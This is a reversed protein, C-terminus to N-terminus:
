QDKLMDMIRVSDVMFRQLFGILDLTVPETLASTRAIKSVFVSLLDANYSSGKGDLNENTNSFTTEDKTPLTVRMVKNGFPALFSDPTWWFFYLPMELEVLHPVLAMMGYYGVFEINIKLNRNRIMSQMYGHAWSSSGGLFTMCDGKQASPIASDVDCLDDNVFVQDWADASTREPWKWGNALLGDMATGTSNFYDM